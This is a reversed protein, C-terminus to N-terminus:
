SSRDVKLAGLIYQLGTGLDEERLFTRLGLYVWEEFKKVDSVEKESLYASLPKLGDSLDKANAKKEAGILGLVRQTYFDFSDLLSLKFMRNLVSNKTRLEEGLIKLNLEETPAEKVAMILNVFFNLAMRRAKFETNFM